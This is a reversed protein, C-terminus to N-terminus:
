EEAVTTKPATLRLCLIFAVTLSVVIEVNLKHLDQFDKKRTELTSFSLLIQQRAVQVLWYLFYM